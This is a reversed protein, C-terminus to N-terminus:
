SKAEKTPHFRSGLGCTACFDETDTPDVPASPQTPLYLHPREAAAIWDQLAQAFNM